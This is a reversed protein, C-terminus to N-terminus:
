ATDKLILAHFGGNQRPSPLTTEARVLTATSPHKRILHEVTDKNEDPLISCTSYLLHGGPSLTKWLNEVLERQTKQLEKINEPSQILKAEPHKQLVGTGSCPADCIIADFCVGNWWEQPTTANAQLVKAQPYTQLNSKLRNVKEQSIDLALLQCNPYDNLIATAKGGPAACADLILASEKLRPLAQTVKQQTLDQIYIEGSGLGPLVNIVSIPAYICQTSQTCLSAPIDLAKLKKLYDTSTTKNTNVRIHAYQQPSAWADLCMKLGTKGHADIIKQELWTPINPVEPAKEQNLRKLAAYVVPKAWARNIKMTVEAASHIITNVSRKEMFKLQYLSSIILYKLKVDKPKFKTHKSAWLGLTEYERITGSVIATILHIPQQPQTSARVAKDIHAKNQIVHHLAEIISIHNTIYAKNQASM